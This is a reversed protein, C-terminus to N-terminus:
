VGKVLLVADGSVFSTRLSEPLEQYSQYTLYRMADVLDDTESSPQLTKFDVSNGNPLSMTYSPKSPSNQPEAPMCYYEEDMSVRFLKLEPPANNNVDWVNKYGVWLIEDFTYGRLLEISKDVSCDAEKIGVPQQMGRLQKVLAHVYKHRINCDKWVILKM